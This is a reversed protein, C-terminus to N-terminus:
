IHYTINSTSENMIKHHDQTLIKKELENRKRIHLLSNLAHRKWSAEQSLKQTARSLKVREGTAQGSGPRYLQQHGICYCALFTSIGSSEVYVLSVENLVFKQMLYSLGVGPSLSNIKMKCASSKCPTGNVKNFSFCVAEKWCLSKSKAKLTELLM